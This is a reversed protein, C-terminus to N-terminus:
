LTHLFGVLVQLLGGTAAVVPQGVVESSQLNTSLRLTRYDWSENIRAKLGLGM